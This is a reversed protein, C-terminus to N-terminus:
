SGRARFVYRRSGKSLRYVFSFRGRTDAALSAVQHSQGAQLRELAIMEGPQAGEGRLPIPTGTAVAHPAHLAFGTATRGFVSSLSPGASLFLILAAAAGAQLVGVTLKSLQPM